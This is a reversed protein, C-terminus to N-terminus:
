VSMADLKAWARYLAVEKEWADFEANVKARHYDSFCRGIMAIKLGSQNLHPEKNM